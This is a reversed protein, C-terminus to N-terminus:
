APQMLPLVAAEIAIVAERKSCTGQHPVVQAARLAIIVNTVVECVVTVKRVFSKRLATGITRAGRCAVFM